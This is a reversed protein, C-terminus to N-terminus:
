RAVPGHARLPRCSGRAAGRVTRGSRHAEGLSSARLGAGDLFVGAEKMDGIMKGVDGILCASPPIGAETEPTSKHLLMVRM